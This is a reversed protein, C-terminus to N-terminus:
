RKQFVDLGMCQIGHCLYWLRTRHLYKAHNFAVYRVCLNSEKGYGIGIPERSLIPAIKAELGGLACCRPLTVGHIITEPEALGRMVRWSPCNFGRNREHMYLASRLLAAWCYLRAYIPEFSHAIIYNALTHKGSVISSSDESIRTIHGGYHFEGAYEISVDSAIGITYFM